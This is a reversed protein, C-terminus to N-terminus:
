HFDRSKPIIWQDRPRSHAPTPLNLVPEQEQPPYPAAGPRRVEDARALPTPMDLGDEPLPDLMWTHDKLHEAVVHIINGHKQIRGRILLPRSTMIASEM